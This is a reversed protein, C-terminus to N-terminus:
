QLFFKLLLMLAMPVGLFLTLIRLLVAVGSPAPPPNEVAQEVDSASSGRAAFKVAREHNSTASM